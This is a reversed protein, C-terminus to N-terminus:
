QTLFLQDSSGECGKRDKQIAGMCVVQNKEKKTKNEDGVKKTPKCSGWLNNNSISM